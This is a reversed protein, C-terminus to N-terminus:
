QCYRQARSSFSTVFNQDSQRSYDVLVAKGVWILPSFEIFM